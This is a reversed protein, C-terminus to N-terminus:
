ALIPHALQEAVQPLLYHALLQTAELLELPTLVVELAAQAEQAL